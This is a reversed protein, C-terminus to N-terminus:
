RNNRINGDSDEYYIENNNEDYETKSWWGDSNRAYIINCNSDYSFSFWFDDPNIDNVNVVDDYQYYVTTTKIYYPKPKKIKM